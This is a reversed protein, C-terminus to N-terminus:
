LFAGSATMPATADASNSGRGMLADPPSASVGAASWPLSIPPLPRLSRSTQSRTLWSAAGRPTRSSPPLYTAPYDREVIKRMETLARRTLDPVTASVAAFDSVPDNLSEDPFADFVAHAIIRNGHVAVSLDRGALQKQEERLTDDVPGCPCRRRAVSPDRYCWRQLPTTRRSQSTWLLTASIAM